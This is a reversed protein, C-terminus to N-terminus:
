LNVLYTGPKENFKEYPITLLPFPMCKPDFKTIFFFVVLFHFFLKSNTLKSYGHVNICYHFKKPNFFTFSFKNTIIKVVAIIIVSNSPLEQSDVFFTFFLSVCNPSEYKLIM